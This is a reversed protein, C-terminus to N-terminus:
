SFSFFFEVVGESVRNEPRTRKAVVRAVNRFMGFGLGYLEGPFKRLVLVDRM